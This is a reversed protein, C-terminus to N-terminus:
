LIGTIHQGDFYTEEEQETEMTTETGTTSSTVDTENFSNNEAIPHV